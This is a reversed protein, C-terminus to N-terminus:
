PQFTDAQSPYNGDGCRGGLDVWQRMSGDAKVKLVPVKAALAKKLMDKTGAGGPFGIVLDPKGKDLMRANRIPGAAPGQQSWNAHFRYAPVHNLMAWHDALRDAGRAMGHIMCVIPTQDHLSDLVRFLMARDEFNRGGCVIVRM